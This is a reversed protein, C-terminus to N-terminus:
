NCQPEHQANEAIPANSPALKKDFPFSNDKESCYNTSQEDAYPLLPHSPPNISLANEYTSYYPIVSSVVYGYM